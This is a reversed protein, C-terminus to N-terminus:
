STQAQTWAELVKKIQNRSDYYSYDNKNSAALTKEALSIIERAKTHNLPILWSAIGMWYNIQHKTKNLKWVSKSAVLLTEQLDELLGAEEEVKAILLKEQLYEITQSEQNACVKAIALLEKCKEPRKALLYRRAILCLPKVQLPLLTPAIECSHAYKREDEELKTAEVLENPVCDPDIVLSVEAIRCLNEIESLSNESNSSSDKKAIDLICKAQMIQSKQVQLLAAKCYGEIRDRLFQKERTEKILKDGGSFEDQTDVQNAEEVEDAKLPINLFSFTTPLDVDIEEKTDNLEERSGCLYYIAISLIPDVLKPLDHDSIRKFIKNKILCVFEPTDSKVLISCLGGSTKSCEKSHLFGGFAIFKEMAIISIKGSESELDSFLFLSKAHISIDGIAKLPELVIVTHDSLDIRISEGKLAINFLCFSTKNITFTEYPKETGKGPFFYLDLPPRINNGTLQTM